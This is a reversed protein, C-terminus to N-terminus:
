LAIEEIERISNKRAPAPSAKKKAQREVRVVDFGRLAVVPPVPRVKEALEVGFLVGVGDPLTLFENQDILARQREVRRVEGGSVSESAENVSLLASADEFVKEGTLKAWYEADQTQKFILQIQSNDFVRQKAEKGSVDAFDGEFDGQSQHAVIFNVGYSRMLGLSDVSTKSILHRFEDAFITVHGGVEGAKKLQKIRAFILRAAYKQAQSGEDFVFYVGDSELLDALSFGGGLAEVGAMLKIYKETKRAKAEALGLGIEELTAAGGRSVEAVAALEELTYVDSEKGTPSLACAEAIADAIQQPTAGALVDIQPVEAALDVFRAGKEAFFATLYPDKKPDFVVSKVEGFIQGFIMQAFVGKGSGPAGMVRFNKAKFDEITVGKFGKKTAGLAILGSKKAWKELGGFGTKKPADADLNRVDSLADKSKKHGFKEALRPEISSVLRWVAALGGFFGGLLAWVGDFMVPEFVGWYQAVAGGLWANTGFVVWFAVLGFFVLGALGFVGVFFLRFLTLFFSPNGVVLWIGRWGVMLFGLSAGFVWPWFAKFNDFDGFYRLIQGNWFFDIAVWNIMNEM